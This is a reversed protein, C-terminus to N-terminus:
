APPLAFDRDAPYAPVIQNLIDDLQREAAAKNPHEPMGALAMRMAPIDLLMLEVANKGNQRPQVSPLVIFTQGNWNWAYLSMWGADLLSKQRTAAATLSRRVFTELLDTLRVRQPENLAELTPNIEAGHIAAGAGFVFKILPTLGQRHKM